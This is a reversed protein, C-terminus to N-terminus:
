QCRGSSCCRRHLRQRRVPCRRGGPAPPGAVVPHPEVALTLVLPRHQAPGRLYCVAECGGPGGFQGVGAGLARGTERGRAIDFGDGATWRLHEKEGRELCGRGSFLFFFFPGFFFKGLNTELWQKKSSPGWTEGKGMKGLAYLKSHADVANLGCESCNRHEDRNSSSSSASDVCVTVTVSKRTLVTCCDTRVTALPSCRKARATSYVGGALTLTERKKKKKNRKKQKRKEIGGNEKAFSQNM